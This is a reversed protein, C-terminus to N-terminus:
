SFTPLRLTAGFLILFIISNKRLRNNGRYIYIYIYIYINTRKSSEISFLM